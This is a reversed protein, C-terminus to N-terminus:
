GLPGGPLIGWKRVTRTQILGEVNFPDADLLRGVEDASEARVIILAGPAGADTFPGRLLVSGADQLTQLFERHAPRHVDRADSSDAAYDYQVAYVPM